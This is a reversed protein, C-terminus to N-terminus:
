KCDNYVFRTFQELYGPGGAKVGQGSHKIGGFPQENVRAGIQADNIYINGAQAHEEIEHIESLRQGYYAITLGYRTENAFQLAQKLDDAERILLIPGFIEEKFLRSHTGKKVRYITAKPYCGKSLLDDSM